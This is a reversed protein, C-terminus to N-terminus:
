YILFKLGLLELHFCFIYRYVCVCVCKRFNGKFRRVQRILVRAQLHNSDVAGDCQKKAAVLSSGRGLSTHKQSRQMQGLASDPGLFHELGAEEAPLLSRAGRAWSGM